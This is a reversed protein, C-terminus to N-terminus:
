SEASDSKEEAMTSRPVVKKRWPGSGRGQSRPRHRKENTERSPAYDGFYDLTALYDLLRQLQNMERTNDRHVEGVQSASTAAPVSSSVQALRERETSQTLAVGQKRTIQGIWHQAVANAIHDASEDCYAPDLLLVMSLRLGSRPHHFIRWLYGVTGICIRNKKKRLRKVLMQCQSHLTDYADESFDELPMSALMLHVVQLCAYEQFLGNIWEVRGRHAKRERRQANAQTQFFADSLCHERLAHMLAVPTTHAQRQNFERLAGPYGTLRISDSYSDLTDLTQKLQEILKVRPSEAYGRCPLTPALSPASVPMSTIAAEADNPSGCIANFDAEDLDVWAQIQRSLNELAQCDRYHSEFRRPQKGPQLDLDWARLREGATTNRLSRTTLPFM